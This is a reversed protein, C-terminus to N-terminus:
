GALRVSDFLSLSAFYTVDIAVKAEVMMLEVLGVVTLVEDFCILCHKKEEKQKAEENDSEDDTDDVTEVVNQHVLTHLDDGLEEIM